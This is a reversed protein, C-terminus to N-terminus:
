ESTKMALFQSLLTEVAPEAFSRACIKEYAAISARAAVAPSASPAGSPAVLAYMAEQQLREAELEVAKIRTRFAEAAGPDLLASPTKLARRVARLPVVTSERWAEVRHEIEQVEGPAFTRSDQAHWLLYLLLNVDVGSQEQLAICADAVGPQRYFRLSFRWFPSGQSKTGTDTM